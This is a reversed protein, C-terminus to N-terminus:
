KKQLLIQRIKSFNNFLRMGLVVSVAVSLSVGLINGIWIIFSALIVNAFFGVIFMKLDFNDEIDCLIGGFITDFSALIAIAIYQTMETPITVPLILGIACGLVIGIIIIIM